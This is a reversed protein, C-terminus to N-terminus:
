EEEPFYLDINKKDSFFTLVDTDRLYEMLGIQILSMFNNMINENTELSKNLINNIDENSFNPFLNEWNYENGVMGGPIDRLIPENDRYIYDSYNKNEIEKIIEKKGKILLKELQEKKLEIKVKGIGPIEIEQIIIESM